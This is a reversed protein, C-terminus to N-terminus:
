QELLALNRRYFDTEKKGRRCCWAVGALGHYLQYYRVLNVVDEATRYWSAPGYGKLLVNLQARSLVSSGTLLKFFDMSPHGGRMSEFDIIGQYVGDLSLLNGSRFDFHVAVAASSDPISELADVFMARANEAVSREVGTIDALYRETNASLLEHWTGSGDFDPAPTEHIRRLDSGIQYLCGDSCGKFDDLPMGPIVSMLVYAADNQTHIGHAQPTAPHDSLAQLWQHERQAKEISFPRKLVYQRDDSIFRIVDSAFSEGIPLLQRVHRDFHLQAVEVLGAQISDM